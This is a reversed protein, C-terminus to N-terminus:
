SLREVTIYLDYEPAGGGATIVTTYTIAVVTSQLFISAQAANGLGTLDLDNVIVSTQAQENDTFGITVDLTGGSGAKTCVTYASVRYVGVAAPTYIATAGINGTQGTLAVNGAISPQGLGAANWETYHWTSNISDYIYLRRVSGSVYLLHEGGEGTYTPVSTVIRM